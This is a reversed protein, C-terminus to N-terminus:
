WEDLNYFVGLSQRNAWVASNERGSVEEEIRGVWGPFFTFIKRVVRLFWFKIAVEIFLMSLFEQEGLITGCLLASEPIKTNWFSQTCFPSQVVKKKKAWHNFGEASPFPFVVRRKPPLGRKSLKVKRESRCCLPQWGIGVSLQSPSRNLDVDTWIHTRSHHLIKNTSAISRSIHFGLAIFVYRKPM